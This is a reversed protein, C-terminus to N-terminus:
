IKSIDLTKGSKMESILTRASEKTVKYIGMLQYVAASMWTDPYLRQCRKGILLAVHRRDRNMALARALARREVKTLKQEKM